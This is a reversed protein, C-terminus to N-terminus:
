CHFPAILM